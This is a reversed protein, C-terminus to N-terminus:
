KIGLAAWTAPGVKGDEKLGKAKQFERVAKDTKPGFDGDIDGAAFGLVRQLVKVSEGSAGKFLMARTPDTPAPKIAPMITGATLDLIQDAAERFDACDFTPDIKRGRPKAYEKHGSLMVPDFKYAKALATMGVIYAHMQIDPWPDKGDGANHAECGLFEHNGRTVGQWLGPGAHNCYGAGLIHYVGDKDLFMQSLPGPLDSRGDRVLAKLAAASGPGTHHLLVGKVADLPGRGRTKWGPEEEVRLGANRLVDALDTVYM